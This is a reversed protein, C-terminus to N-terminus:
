RTQARGALLLGSVILAGGAWHYPQLGEGLLLWGLIATFVPMLYNSMATRAPGLERLGINWLQYALVSAFLATYGIAALNPLNPEFRAGQWLEWAYLPALMPLGILVLAGLLTFPPLQFHASWRRLLLSYLAWDLTALVMLLDGQAFSLSALVQWDGRGILWLLGCLALILGAWARRAPWEGLLLGAGLFTALPLCTSVLSINIAVTTQAATYLLGNYLTIALLAAFWLRWGARRLVHRHQWLSPGVLPLLIALALAWRWFALSFPPIIGTFARAVLSNGAWFLSALALGVWALLAARSM